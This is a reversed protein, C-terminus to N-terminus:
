GVARLSRKITAIVQKLGPDRPDALDAIWAKRPRPRFLSKPLVEFEQALEKAREREAPDRVNVILLDAASAGAFVPTVGPQGPLQSALVTGTELLTNVLDRFDHAPDPKAALHQGRAPPGSVFIRLYAPFGSSLPGEILVGQCYDMLLDTEWVIEDIPDDPPCGLRAVQFANALLLRQLEEDNSPGSERPEVLGHITETRLVSLHLSRNSRLLQELLTTKGAGPQGDIHIFNREIV